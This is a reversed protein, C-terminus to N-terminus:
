GRSRMPVAFAVTTTVPPASEVSAPLWPTLTARNAAASAGRPDPM